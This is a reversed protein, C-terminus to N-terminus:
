TRAGGVAPANANRVAAGRRIGNQHGSQGVGRWVGHRADYVRFGARQAGVGPFAESVDWGFQGGARQGRLTVDAERVVESRTSTRGVLSTSGYYLYVRGQSGEVMDASVAIDPVGDGNVDRVGAVSRGFESGAGDPPGLVLDASRGRTASAQGM